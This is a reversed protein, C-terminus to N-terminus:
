DRPVLRRLNRLLLGAACGVLWGLLNYVAFVVGYFGGLCEYCGPQHARWVAYVVVAAILAVIVVSPRLLRKVTGAVLGM